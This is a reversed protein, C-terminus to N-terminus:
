EILRAIRSVLESFEPTREMEIARPWPLAVPIIDVLGGDRGLVLIRDALLVSENFDHSAFVVTSAYTPLTEGLFSRVLRKRSFDIASLPEDLVLLRPRAILAKVLLFLQQQGGSLAGPKDRLNLTLKFAAAVPGYEAIAADIMNANTLRHWSSAGNFIGKQILLNTRLSLWPLLANRYDQPLYSVRDATWSFRKEVTGDRPEVANLLLRLLTTKGSGNQGVLAVREGFHLKFNLDKLVHRTTGDNAAFAVNVRDLSICFDNVTPHLHEM